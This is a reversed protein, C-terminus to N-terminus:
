IGVYFCLSKSDDDRIVVVTSKTSGLGKFNIVGPGPTPDLLHVEFQLTPEREDDDVIPALITKRIEGEGFILEGKVPKFDKEPRATQNQTEYGVRIEGDTGDLRIVGIEVVGVNELVNYIPKEIEVIGPMVIMIDRKANKLYDKNWFVRTYYRRTSDRCDVVNKLRNDHNVSNM